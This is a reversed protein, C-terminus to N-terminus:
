ARDTNGDRSLLNQVQNYDLNYDESIKILDEQLDSEMHKIDNFSVYDIFQCYDDCHVPWKPPQYSDVTPTLYLLEDTKEKDSLLEINDYDVLVENYKRKYSGDKICWPCIYLIKKTTLNVVEYSHTTEKNCIPCTNLGELYANHKEPNKHYKFDPLKRTKSLELINYKSENKM